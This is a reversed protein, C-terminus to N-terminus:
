VVSVLGNEVKIRGSLEYEFVESPFRAMAEDYTPNTKCYLLFDDEVGVENTCLTISSIFEDLDYIAKAQNSSLLMNTGESEGIRHPLVYVEKGMKLAYEVSRMTGSNIDAQTVILIDGLAVVCENRIPFNYRTSPTGPAFQSLMLGKQEIDQILRHNIMPYRIDLGTGAVAITNHPEASEHAIADVGMAAGSVIVIGSSSLKKAISHTYQKTYATPKRSGVISIKKRKLLELNGINFMEKPYKKMTELEPIKQTLRNITNM